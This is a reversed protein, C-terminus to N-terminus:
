PVSLERKFHDDSSMVLLMPILDEAFRCLPGPTHMIKQYGFCLPYFGVSSVTGSTPKHGFIGCFYAPIRISGGIDSGIGIVSGGAAILAAEGGSSGGATRRFDYPNNTRPFLGNVSEWWMGCESVNTVALLIAGAAKMKRVIEADEDCVMGKRLYIGATCPLGRVFVCDKVTFPVGLFPAETESPANGSAIIQDVRDAELLANEFNEAVVAHIEPNVQNIRRIYTEVLGTSTLHRRRISIALKKASLQLVSENLASVYRKSRFM